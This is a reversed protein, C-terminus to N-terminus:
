RRVWFGRVLGIVVAAATFGLAWLPIAQMGGALSRNLAQASQWGSMVGPAAALLPAAWAVVIFTTQRARPQAFREDRALILGSALVALSAGAAVWVQAGHTAYLAAALAAAAGAMAFSWRPSVPRLLQWVASAGVLGATWGAGPKLWEGAALAAIFAGAAWGIDAWGASKAAGHSLAAAMALLWILSILVPPDM